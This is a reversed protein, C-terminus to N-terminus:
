PTFVLVVATLGTGPRVKGGALTMLGFDALQDSGGLSLAGDNKAIAPGLEDHNRPLCCAADRIEPRPM